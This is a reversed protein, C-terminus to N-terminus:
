EKQVPAASVYSSVQESPGGVYKPYNPYSCLLCGKVDPKTGIRGKEDIVLTKAPAQNKEVWAILLDIKDDGDPRPINRLAVSKGEGNVKYSKGSLGHGGQPVVYLRAFDDINKQGMKNILSQYYDLQAGSSAINDMTGVTIIIKGGHKYFASLDPNTADLWESIEERRKNLPGGEIYDLPNAKIDQMLFGTVGLTGLSTHVPANEGAGEQGKFRAGTIMGFDDPVTTPLWMGFSKVGNALPTTFKYPSYCLELTKIQGNTLKASPSTDNPNPDIGSSVRLAAWPDAPGIGDTVDFIARSDLYNNIVGDALGDLHDCQRLFEARIAKVKSPTVWNAVPKEQIRIIEPALMLTSFNVIPVDSIIGDYDAPYRQAVTLGERGGQSGGIYYNYNPRKGYVREIIVMAADHTKKMQMYGLNRIAEENLAWEDGLAPGTALPKNQMGGPGGMGSAQHGADSGYMAFGKNLMPNRGERVTIIGNIGGGGSQMARHSWSAPLLVRFNIPWGNSDVPFISGEVVGYAPTADTAEIWRPAYLKVSSVPEGIASAPISLGAKEINEKSIVIDASPTQGVAIACTIILTSAFFSFPNNM